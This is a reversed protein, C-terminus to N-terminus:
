SLGKDPAAVHSIRMLRLRALVLDFRMEQLLGDLQEVEVALETGAVLSQLMHFRSFADFKNQELLPTLEDVLAAFAQDDVRKLVAVQNPLEGPSVHQRPLWKTLVRKLTDIAIPKTLFDDMGVALCHQRDEEFADATLAIIPIHSRTKDIEWQRIRHTATYGDMVPMHLDMLILDPLDISDNQTIAEVVQHGDNLMTVLLGLKGLLLKIVICNVPNDEVVLVHGLLPLDTTVPSTSPAAASHGIRSDEGSGAIDVRIRFWFRSGKGAESEVGVDGGLAHAVSSVISLGLGSGGFERTISSDTQSFPKFLLEFKDASIGIGTDRVSFELLATVGDREVETGEMRVQGQQTFKIANGVLNSLMQRVRHSDSQYRQNSPGSWQYLLQLNKTKAAGAFLSHIEHLIQAPEFVRSELQLRGAEIRSLDLIDNLLMLLTQGSSLITRVYDRRETEALNPMQLLQAMGLIGNMPTRIEHSMTALFRSKAVNAAEATIKAQRLEVAADHQIQIARLHGNYGHVLQGIENLIPETPLPEHQINPENEIRRFGDSVARIPRVVTKLFYGALMLVGLLALFVLGFTVFALKDIKQTLLARPTIAVIMRQQIDASGVNMLIDEGDLMLQPVPQIERVLELLAPTLPQGFMKLDSHLEINGNRDLQMLQTGPGLQATKLYNRMIEDNLNIVLVGVTELKGTTPSFNHIPRIVSIVKRQNSNANLNDDIGRWLIPTSAALSERLLSNAATKQVGSFNLTQGVQFSEGGLSFINISVLGKVRVYNNLTYGIQARMELVSFADTTREDAHHLANGIVPNGAINTAMDEIQDQYLHLYSAFNAVLRKNESEAQEVVISKSINFATLGLLILPLICAVLLYGLLKISINM